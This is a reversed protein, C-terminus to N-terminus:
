FKSIIDEKPLKLIESPLAKSYHESLSCFGNHPEGDSFSYAEERYKYEGNDSYWDGDEISYSRYYRMWEGEIKEVFYIDRFDLNVVFSNPEIKKPDEIYLNLKKSISIISSSVVKGYKNNLEALKNVLLDKQHNNLKETKILKKLKRINM